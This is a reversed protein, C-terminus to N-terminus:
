VVLQCRAPTEDHLLQSFILAAQLSDSLIFIPIALGPRVGIPKTRRICWITAPRDRRGGSKFKFLSFAMAFNLKLQTEPCMTGTM